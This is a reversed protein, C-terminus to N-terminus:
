EKSKIPECDKIRSGCKILQMLVTSAKTRGCERANEATWDKGCRDDVEMSVKLSELGGFAGDVEAAEAM